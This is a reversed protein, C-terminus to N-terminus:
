TIQTGVGFNTCKFHFSNPDTPKPGYKAPVPNISGSVCDNPHLRLYEALSIGLKDGKIEYANVPASPLKDASIIKSTDLHGDNYSVLKGGDLIAFWEKDKGIEVHRGQEAGILSRCTDAFVHLKRAQKDLDRRNFNLEHCAPMDVGVKAAFDDVSEGIVHGGTPKPADQGLQGPAPSPPLANEQATVSNAVSAAPKAENNTHKEQAYFTAMFLNGQQRNLNIGGGDAFSWAASDATQADPSGYKQVFERLSKAWDAKGRVLVQTLRRESFVVAVSVSSNSDTMTGSGERGIKKIEECWEKAKSKGSVCIKTGSIRMFDDWSEGLTQHEFMTVQPKREQAILWECTTATFTLSLLSMAAIKM